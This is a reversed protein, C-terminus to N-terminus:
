YGLAPGQYTPDNYYFSYAQEAYGFQERLLEYRPHLVEQLWGTEAYLMLSLETYGTVRWKGGTPDYTETDIECNPAAKQMEAVQEAPVPTICGIWLRELETLGYLPSIDSINPCNGINLHRLKKAESLASLDNIQTSNLELYELNPCNALPSLDSIVNMAIVLVELNPLHSAFDLNTLDLNHGIDVYKLDTCYKLVEMDSDYLTGGISPKSALCKVADTRLTYTSGFFVRWVIKVDPFEAQLAAMNENSIGCSDMNVFSCNAFYPLVERLAQGKDPLEQYSFDLEEDMLNVTKGYLTFSYDLAVEPFATSLTDIFGMSLDSGLTFQRPEELLSLVPLTSDLEADSLAQLDVTQTNHPLEKGLISVSYRLDAEPCAAAIADIAERSLASADGLDIQRVQPLCPLLEAFSLLSATDAGSLDLASADHEAASGNPLPVTYRVKTGPHSQAWQFIEQICTSGSLDASELLPLNDLLAIDEPTVIATLHTTEEVPYKGSSLTVKEACGCLLLACLLCLVPILIKRKATHNM